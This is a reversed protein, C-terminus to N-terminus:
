STLGELLTDSEMLTIERYEVSNLLSNLIHRNMRSYSKEGINFQTAIDGQDVVLLSLSPFYFYSHTM